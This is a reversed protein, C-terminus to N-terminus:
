EAISFSVYGLATKQTEPLFKNFVCYCDNGDTLITDCGGGTYAFVFRLEETAPDFLYIRMKGDEYDMYEGPVNSGFTALLLHTDDIACMRSIAGKLEPLWYSKAEGSHNLSLSGLVNESKPYYYHDGAYCGYSNYRGIYHSEGSGLDLFHWDGTFRMDIPTDSTYLNPAKDSYLLMDQALLQFYYNGGAFLLTEEGTHLDLAYYDFGSSTMNEGLADQKGGVKFVLYNDTAFQLNIGGHGTRHQGADFLLSTEGKQLDYRYINYEDAYEFYLDGSSVVVTRAKSFSAVMTETGSDDIRYLNKEYDLRYWKGASPFIRYIRTDNSEYGYKMDACGGIVLALCLCVIGVCTWYIKHLCSPM